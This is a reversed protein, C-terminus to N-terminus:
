FGKVNIYQFPFQSIEDILRRPTGRSLYFGAVISEKKDILHFFQLHKMISQRIDYATPIATKEGFRYFGVPLQGSDAVSEFCIM